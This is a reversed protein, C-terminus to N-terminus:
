IDKPQIYNPSKTEKETDPDVILYIDAGKLNQVTPGTELSKAQVGYRNFINGLISYGNNDYEEWIYHFRIPKGADMRTERNFYYDLLVTKGKGYSLTNLMEIENSAQIFAGVGKPDNVVVKESM